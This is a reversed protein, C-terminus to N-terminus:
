SFLIMMFFVLGIMGLSTTIITGISTNALSQRYKLEADINSPMM